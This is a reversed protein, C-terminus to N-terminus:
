FNKLRRSKFFASFHCCPFPAGAFAMALPKSSRMFWESSVVLDLLRQFFMPQPFVWRLALKCDKVAMGSLQPFWIMDCFLGFSSTTTAVGFSLWSCRRISVCVAFTQLSGVSGASGVRVPGEDGGSRVDDLYPFAPSVKNWLTMTAAVM